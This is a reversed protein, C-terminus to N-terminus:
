LGPLSLGPLAFPPTFFGPHCCVWRIGGHHCLALGFIFAGPCGFALGFVVGQHFLGLCVGFGGPLQCFLSLVLALGSHSAVLLHFCSCVGSVRLSDFFIFGVKGLAPL